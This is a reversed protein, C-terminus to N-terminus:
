PEGGEEARQLVAALDLFANGADLLSSQSKEMAEMAADCDRLRMAITAAGSHSRAADLGDGIASIAAQLTSPPPNFENM